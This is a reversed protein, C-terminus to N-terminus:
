VVVKERQGSWVGDFLMSRLDDRNVRGASGSDKVFQKTLTSKGSGPLGRMMRLKM